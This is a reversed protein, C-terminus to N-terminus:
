KLPSKRATSLTSKRQELVLIGDREEINTEVCQLEMCRSSNWTM